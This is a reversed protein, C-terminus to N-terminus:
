RGLRARLEHKLDADTTAHGDRLVVVATVEEGWKEGQLGIVGAERVAPRKVRGPHHRLREGVLMM